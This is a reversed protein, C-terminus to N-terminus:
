QRKKYTSCSCMDWIYPIYHSFDLAARCKKGAAEGPYVHISGELYGLITPNNVISFWAVQKRSGPAHQKDGVIIASTQSFHVISFAEPLLRGPQLQRSLPQFYPFVQCHLDQRVGPVGHM